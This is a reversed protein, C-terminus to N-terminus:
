RTPQRPARGGRGGQNAQKRRDSRGIRIFRSFVQGCVCPERGGFGARRIRTHWGGLGKHRSDRFLRSVGLRSDRGHGRRRRSHLGLGLVNENRLQRALAPLRHVLRGSRGSPVPRSRPDAPADLAPRVSSPRRGKSRRPDRGCKGRGLRLRHGPTRGIDELGLRGCDSARVGYRMAGRRSAGTGSGRRNRRIRGISGGSHPGGLDAADAARGAGARIASADPSRDGRRLRAGAM